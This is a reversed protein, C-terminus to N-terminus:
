QAADATMGDHHIVRVHAGEKTVVTVARATRADAPALALHLQRHLGLPYAHEPVDLLLACQGFVFAAAAAPFLVTAGSSKSGHQRRAPHLEGAPHWALADSVPLPSKTPGIPAQREVPSEWGNCPRPWRGGALNPAHHGVATTKGRDARGHLETGVRGVGSFSSFRALRLNHRCDYLGPSARDFNQDRRRRPGDLGRRRHAAKRDPLKSRRAGDHFRSPM